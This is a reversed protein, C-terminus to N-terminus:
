LQKLNEIFNEMWFIETHKVQQWMKETPSMRNPNKPKFTDFKKQLEDRKIEYKKILEKVM